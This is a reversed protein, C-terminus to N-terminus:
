LSLFDKNLVLTPGIVNVTTNRSPDPITFKSVGNLSSNPSPSRSQGCIRVAIQYKHIKVILGAVSYQELEKPQHVMDFSFPLGSFYKILVFHRFLFHTVMELTRWSDCEESASNFIRHPLITNVTFHLGGLIHELISRVSPTFFSM